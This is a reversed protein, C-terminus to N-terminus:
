NPPWLFTAARGGITSPGAENSQPNKRWFVAPLNKFFKTKLKIRHILQMFETIKETEVTEFILTRCNRPNFVLKALSGGIDVAITLLGTSNWQNEQFEINQGM